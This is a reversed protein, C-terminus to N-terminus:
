TKPKNLHAEKSGPSISEERMREKSFREGALKDQTYCVDQAQAPAFGEIVIPLEGFSSHPVSTGEAM